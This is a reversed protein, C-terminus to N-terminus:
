SKGKSAKRNVSVSRQAQIEGNKETNRLHELAATECTEDLDDASGASEVAYTAIDEHLKLRKDPRLLHTSYAKEINPDGSKSFRLLSKKGKGWSLYVTVSPRLGGKRGNAHLARLLMGIKSLNIIIVKELYPIRRRRWEEYDKQSLKEMRILLDVFSIYGKERLLESSAENMKGILDSRNASM